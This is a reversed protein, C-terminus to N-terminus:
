KQQQFEKFNSCAYGLDDPVLEFEKLYPAIFAAVEAIRNESQARYQAHSFPKNNHKPCPFTDEEQTSFEALISSAAKFSRRLKAFWFEKEIKGCPNQFSKLRRHLNTLQKALKVRLKWAENNPRPASCTCVPVLLTKIKTDVKPFAM